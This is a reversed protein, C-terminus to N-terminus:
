AMHSHTVPHRIPLALLKKGKEGWFNFLFIVYIALDVVNSGFYNQICGTLASSGSRHMSLVFVITKTTKEVQAM